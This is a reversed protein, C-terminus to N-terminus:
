LIGSVPVSTVTVIVRSAEMLRMTGLIAEFLGEDFSIALDALSDSKSVIKTLRQRISGCYSECARRDLFPIAVGVSRETVHDVGVVHRLRHPVLRGDRNVIGRPQRPQMKRQGLRVPGLEVRQRLFHCLPLVGSNLPNFALEGAKFLDNASRIADLLDRCINHRM